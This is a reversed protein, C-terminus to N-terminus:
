QHLVSMQEKDILASENMYYYRGYAVKKRFTDDKEILEDILLCIQRSSFLKYCIDCIAEKMYTAPLIGSYGHTTILDVLIKPGFTRIAHLVYNSEAREFIDCVTEERLNGLYLPTFDPMTIPPGICAIVKGDPFIVPFSAMPCAYPPPESSLHYNNLKSNKEARGVPLIFSTSINDKESFELIDDMLKLYEPDDESETSVAVNYLKGLKKAAWIANRANEFPIAVQHPIDTSVSIMNISGCLKLIRLAEEKSSAWFANSVVSVIFGLSNAHDAIKIMHQFNYFPEGGTLSVGIVFGNRFSKIQSLWEIASELNMEEKRHPGAKVICHPCAITCKYTLLLGVNSLFPVEEIKRENMNLSM